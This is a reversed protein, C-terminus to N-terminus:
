NVWVQWRLFPGGLAASLIGWVLGGSLFHGLALGLFAPVLNSYARNGGYRLLLGKTIWVIIFTPFFWCGYQCNALLYGVPHLPLGTWRTRALSVLATLVGGFVTAVIRQLDPDAPAHESRLVRAYEARMAGLGWHGGPLVIAGKAYYPVLHTVFGSLVGFGIASVTALVIMNWGIGARRCLHIGEVQYGSVSPFGTRSLFSTLAFITPSALTHGPPVLARGGFVDWIALYETTYPRAWLLPVGTDARVRAYALSSLVIVGMSTLALWPAMGAAVLFAITGAFCAVAGPMAWRPASRSPAGALGPSAETSGPTVGRTNRAAVGARWLMVLGIVLYGGFAQQKAYPIAADRYGATALLVGLLKSFITFFIVSVAVENTVLYGLGILGPQIAFLLPPEHGLVVWPYSLNLRNVYFVEGGYSSGGFFVGRVMNVANLLTAVAIGLWTMRNRFFAGALGAGLVELPLRALPFTLREQDLWREAVLLLLCFVTGGLLLFFTTWALMPLWWAQWPVAGSAAGEWLSSQVLRDQPALWTPIFATLTETPEAPTSLYQAEGLAALLHRMGGIGLMMISLTMVVYLLVAEPTSLGARRSLRRLLPNALLVLVLAALSPIAPVAGTLMCANSFLEAQRIWYGSLWTLALGILLIVLLRTPVVPLPAAAARQETNALGPTLPM